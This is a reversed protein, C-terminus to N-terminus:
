KLNQSIVNILSDLDYPKALTTTAGAEKATKEDSNIINKEFKGSWIIIPIQNISKETEYARIQRILSIGDLPMMEYDTLVLKIESDNLYLKYAEQGDAATAVNYKPFYEAVINQLLSM